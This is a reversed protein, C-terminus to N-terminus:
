NLIRLVRWNRQLLYSVRKRDHEIEEPSWHTAGNLAPPRLTTARDGSNLDAKRWFRVNQQCASRSWAVASAPSTLALGDAERWYRGHPRTRFLPARGSQYCKGMRRPM